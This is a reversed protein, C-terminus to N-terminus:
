LQVLSTQSFPMGISQETNAIAGDLVSFIEARQSATSLDLTTPNGAAALAADYAALATSQPIPGYFSGNAYALTNMVNAYLTGLATMDFYLHNNTPPELTSQNYLEDLYFRVQYPYAHYSDGKANAYSDYKAVFKAVNKACTTTSRDVLGGYFGQNYAYNVIVDLPPNTVNQLATLCAGFRPAPSYGLVGLEGLSRMDNTQFFAALQPGYYKNNFPLPTPEKWQSPAQSFTFGMGAQIADYNLLAYGQPTYSGYVLDLDYNNIQYPGGQGVGMVAQQLPSPDILDQNDTYLTTDINEQLLQGWLSGYLYNKDFQVGPYLETLTRGLVAGAVYNSMILDTYNDGALNLSDAAKSRSKIPPYFHYYIIGTSGAARRKAARIHAPPVATSVAAHAAVAISM